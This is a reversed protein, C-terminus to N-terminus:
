EGMQIDDDNEEKDVKFSNKKPKFGSVGIGFEEPDLDWWDKNESNTDADQPPYIQKGGIWENKKM